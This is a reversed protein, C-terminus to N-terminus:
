PIVQRWINKTYVEKATNCEYNEFEFLAPGM